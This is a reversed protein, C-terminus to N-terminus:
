RSEIAREAVAGVVGRRQGALAIGEHRQISLAFGDIRHLRREGGVWGQDIQRTADLHQTKAGNFAVHRRRPLGRL